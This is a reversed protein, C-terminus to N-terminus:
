EAALGAVEGAGLARDFFKVDQLQLPVESAWGSLMGGLRMCPDHNGVTGCGTYQFVNAGDVYVIGTRNADNLFVVCVHHWGSPWAMINNVTHTAFYVQFNYGSVYCSWEGSGHDTGGFSFVGTNVGPVPDPVNLWLSITFPGSYNSIDNQGNKPIDIYSTSGNFSAAQRGNRGSVYTVDHASGHHGRGSIDGANGDLPMHLVLGQENLPAGNTFAGMPIDGLARRAMAEPRLRGDADTLRVGETGAFYVGGASINGNVSLDGSVSGGSAEVTGAVVLGDGISMPGSVHADGAVDLRAGPSATGLGVNGSYWSSGPTAGARWPGLDGASSIVTGDALRLAGAADLVGGISVSTADRDAHVYSPPPGSCALAVSSGSADFGLVTGVAPPAAALALLSSSTGTFQLHFSGSGQLSGVAGLDMTEAHSGYAHLSVAGDIDLRAVNVDGPLEVTWAVTGGSDVKEIFGRLHQIYDPDEYVWWTEWWSVVISGDAAVVADLLRKSEVDWSSNPDQALAGDRTWVIGGGAAVRLTASAEHADWNVDRLVLVDGGPIPLLDRVPWGPSGTGIDWQSSGAIKRVTRGAGTWYVAVSDGCRSVQEIATNWYFDGGEEYDTYRYEHGFTWSGPDEPRGGLSWESVISGSGNLRAVYGNCDDYNASIWNYEWDHYEYTAQGWATGGVVIDTGSADVDIDKIEDANAHSGGLQRFWRFSGDSALSLVFGDGGGSPTRTAGGITAPARLTGGLYLNGAVDTKASALEVLWQGPTGNPAHDTVPISKAWQPAGNPGFKVVFGALDPDASATGSQISLAGVTMTGAFGGFVYRNGTTDAAMGRITAGLNAALGQAWTAGNTFSSDVRAWQDASLTVGDTGLSVRDPLTVDGSFRAPAMFNLQGDSASLLISSCDTLASATMNSQADLLTGDPLRLGAGSLTVAGARIGGREGSASSWLRTGAPSETSSWVETCGRQSFLFNAFRSGAPQFFWLYNSGGDAWVEWVFNTAAGMEVLLATNPGSQPAPRFAFDAVYDAGNGEALVRGSFLANSDSGVGILAIKIWRADDASDMARLRTGAIQAAPGLADLGVANAQNSVTLTGRIIQNSNVTQNGTVVQDGEVTITGARAASALWLIGLTFAITSTKMISKM